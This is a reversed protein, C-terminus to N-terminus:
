AHDNDERTFLLELTDVGSFTPMGVIIISSIRVKDATIAMLTPRRLLRALWYRWGTLRALYIADQSNGCTVPEELRDPNEAM